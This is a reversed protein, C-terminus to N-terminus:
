LGRVASAEGSVRACAWFDTAGIARIALGFAAPEVLLVGILENLVVVGVPAEARWLPQLRKSDRALTCAQSRVVVAGTRMDALVFSSRPGIRSLRINHTELNRVLIGGEVIGDIALNGEGFVSARMGKPRKLIRDKELGVAQRGVMERIDHVVMMHFDRMHAPRGLPHRRRRFVYVEVVAKSPRRRLKHM